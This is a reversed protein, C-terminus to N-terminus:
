QNAAEKEKKKKSSKDVILGTGAGVGAGVATGIAAGKLPDKKNVVAGTVGGAVAGVIAGKATHNLGKKKKEEAAPANPEVTNGAVEGGDGIETSTERPTAAVPKATATAKSAAPVAAKASPMATEEDVIETEDATAGTETPPTAEVPVVEVPGIATQQNESCSAFVMLMVVPLALNKM